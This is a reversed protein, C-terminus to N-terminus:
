IRGTHPALILGQARLLSRGTAVACAARADHLFRRRIAGDVLSERDRRKFSAIALCLDGPRFRRPM